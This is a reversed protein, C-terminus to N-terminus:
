NLSNENFAGFIVNFSESQQDNQFPVDSFMFFFFFPKSTKKDKLTQLVDCGNFQILTTLSFVLVELQLLM